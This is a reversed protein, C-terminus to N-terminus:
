KGEWPEGAPQITPRGGLDYGRAQIIQETTAGHTVLDNLESLTAPKWDSLGDAFLEIQHGLGNHDTM